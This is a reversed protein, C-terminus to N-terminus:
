LDDINIPELDQQRYHQEEAKRIVEDYRDDMIIVGDRIAISVNTNVLDVTWAQKDAGEAYFWGGMQSYGGRPYGNEDLDNYDWDAPINSMHAGGGRHDPAGYVPDRIADNVTNPDSLHHAGLQSRTSVDAICPLRRNEQVM